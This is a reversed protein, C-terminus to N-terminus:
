HNRGRYDTENVGFLRRVDGVKAMASKIPNSIWVFANNIYDIGRDRIVRDYTYYISLGALNDFFSSTGFNVAFQDPRMPLSLSSYLDMVNMTGEIVMPLGKRNFFADDGGKKFSLSTVVGMPCSFYGPADIQLIFPSQHATIGEQRPLSCTLLFLFPVLVTWFISQDDGTVSAFRFSIDYSRNFKSEDYMQPFQITSGSLASLVKSTISTADDVINGDVGLNKAKEEEAEAMAEANGSLATNFLDADVNAFKLQKALGSATKTAQELISQTFANDVSESISTGKEVWVKFGGTDSDEDMAFTQVMKLASTGFISVSVRNLILQFAMLFSGIDKKFTLFRLDCGNKILENQVDAIASVATETGHSNNLKNQNREIIEAAKSIMNKDAYPIGPVITIVTANRLMTRQYVRQNPDTRPSFAAPKGFIYGANDNYFSTYPNRKETGGLFTRKTRYETSTLDNTLGYNIKDKINQAKESIKNWLTGM